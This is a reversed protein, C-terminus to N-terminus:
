VILTYEIGFEDQMKTFKVYSTMRYLMIMFPEEIHCVCGNDCQIHEVEDGYLSSLLQFGFKCQFTAIDYDACHTSTTQHIYIPAPLRTTMSQELYLFTSALAGILFVDSM